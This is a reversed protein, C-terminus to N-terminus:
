KELIEWKHEKFEILSKELKRKDSLNKTDIFCNLADCLDMAHQVIKGIIQERCHCGFHHNECKAM